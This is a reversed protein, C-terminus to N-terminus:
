SLKEQIQNCIEKVRKRLIAPQIIEAQDGFMLFWRAFGEISHSLFSLQLKGNIEEESVFGHYYKQETLYTAIKKEIRIVVTKLDHERQTVSKLYTKLLSTKKFVSQRDDFM